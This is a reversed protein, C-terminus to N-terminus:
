RAESQYIVRNLISLLKLGLVPEGSHAELLLPLARSLLDLLLLVSLLLDEAHAAADGLVLSLLGSASSDEASRHDYKKSHKVGKVGSKRRRPDM